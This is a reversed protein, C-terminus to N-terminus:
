STDAYSGADANVIVVTCNRPILELQVAVEGEDPINHPASKLVCNTNQIEVSDNTGRTLNITASLNTGATKLTDFFTTDTPIVTTTLEYTTKLPIYETPFPANTTEYYYAMKGNNNVTWEWEKVRALTSGFYTLTGDDFKFPETTISTVSSDAGTNKIVKQAKVNASFAVAEAEAGSLTLSDVVMGPSYLSLSTADVYKWEMVWSPFPMGPKPTITHTYPNTGTVVDKGFAMAIWRGKQLLGNITGNSEHKLELLQFAERDGGRAWIQKWDIEDVLGDVSTVIEPWITQAGATPTEGFTTEKALGILTREARYVM